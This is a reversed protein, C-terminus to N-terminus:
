VVQLTLDSKRVQRLGNALICMSVELILRLKSLGSSIWQNNRTFSPVVMGGFKIHRRPADMTEYARTSCHSCFMVALSEQAVHLKERPTNKAFDRMRSKELMERRAIM